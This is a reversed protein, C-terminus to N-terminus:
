ACCLCGPALASSQTHGSVPTRELRHAHAHAHTDTHTSRSHRRPCCAYRALADDLLEAFRAPTPTARPFLRQCVAEIEVAVIPTDEDACSHLFDAYTAPGIGIGHIFVIAEPAPEEKSRAEAPPRYFYPLEQERRREYGMAAMVRYTYAVRVVADSLAYYLLPRARWRLPDMQCCMSRVDTSPTYAATSLQLQPAAGDEDGDGDGDRRLQSGAAQELEAVIERLEADESPSLRACSSKAFLQRAGWSYVDGARLRGWPVGQFSRDAATAATAPSIAGPVRLWGLLLEAAVPVAPATYMWSSILEQPPQTTLLRRWFVRRREQSWKATGAFPAFGGDWTSATARAAVVHSAVYFAAEVYMWAVALQGASLPANLNFGLDIISAAELVALALSIPGMAELCIIVAVILAVVAGEEEVSGEFGVVAPTPMVVQVQGATNFKDGMGLRVEQTWTNLAAWVDSRPLPAAPRQSHLLATVLRM